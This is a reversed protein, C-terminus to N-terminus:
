ADGLTPTATPQRQTATMGVPTSRRGLIPLGDREATSVEVAAGLRQPSGHESVPPGANARARESQEARTAEDAGWLCFILDMMLGVM